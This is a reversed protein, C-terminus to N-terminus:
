YQPSYYKKCLNYMDFILPFGWKKRMSVALFNFCQHGFIKGIKDSDSINYKFTADLLEGNNKFIYKLGSYLKDKVSNDNIIEPKNNVLNFIEKKLDTISTHTPLIKESVCSITVEAQTASKSQSVGTPQAQAVKIIDVTQMSPITPTNIPAAQLRDLSVNTTPIDINIKEFRKFDVPLIDLQKCASKIKRAWDKGYKQKFTEPNNNYDAILNQRKANSKNQYNLPLSEFSKISIQVNNSKKREWKKSKENKFNRKIVCELWEYDDCYNLSKLLEGYDMIRNNNQQLIDRQGKNLINHLFYDVKYDKSKSMLLRKSAGKQFLEKFWNLLSMKSNDLQKYDIPYKDPEVCHNIFRHLEQIDALKKTKAKQADSKLEIINHNITVNNYDKNIYNFFQLLELTLCKKKVTNDFRYDSYNATTKTHKGIKALTPLDCKPNYLYITINKKQERLRNIFQISEHSCFHAPTSIIVVNEINSNYIDCGLNGKYTMLMFDNPNNGTDSVLSKFEGPTLIGNDQAMEKLPVSFYPVSKLNSEAFKENFRLIKKKDNLLILDCTGDNHNKILQQIVENYRSFTALRINAPQEKYTIIPYLDIIKFDIKNDKFFDHVKENYTATLGTMKIGRQYCLLMLQAIDDINGKDFTTNSHIEDFIIHTIDKLFYNPNKNVKQITVSEGNIALCSRTVTIRTDTHNYHKKFFTSKGSGPPALIITNQNEDIMKIINPIDSIYKYTQNNKTFPQVYWDIKELDHTDLKDSVARKYKDDILELIAKKALNEPFLYSLKSLMSFSGKRKIGDAGSNIKKVMYALEDIIYHVSDPNFYDNFQLETDPTDGTQDFMEKTTEIKESKDFFTVNLYCEIFNKLNNEKEQPELESIKKDLESISKESYKNNKLFQLKTHYNNGLIDVNGEGQSDTTQITNYYRNTRVIIHGSWYINKKHHGTDFETQYLLVSEPFYKYIYEVMENLLESGNDIDIVIYGCGGMNKAVMNPSKIDKILENPTSQWNDPSSKSAFPQYKWENENKTVRVYCYMGSYPSKEDLENSYYGKVKENKM